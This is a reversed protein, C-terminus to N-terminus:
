LNETTYVHIVNREISSYSGFVNTLNLHYHKIEAITKKYFITLEKVISKNYVVPWVVYLKSQQFKGFIVTM